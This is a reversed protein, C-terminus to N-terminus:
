EQRERTQGLTFSNSRSSKSHLCSNASTTPSVSTDCSSKLRCWQTASPGHPVNRLLLSVPTLQSSRSGASTPSPDSLSCVSLCVPLGPSGMQKLPRYNIPGMVSKLLIGTLDASELTKARSLHAEHAKLWDVCHHRSLDEHSVDKLGVVEALEQRCELDELDLENVRESYRTKSAEAPREM